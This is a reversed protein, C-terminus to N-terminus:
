RRHAAMAAAQRRTWCRADRGRITDGPSKLRKRRWRFRGAASQRLWVIRRAEKVQTVAWYVEFPLMLNIQPVM